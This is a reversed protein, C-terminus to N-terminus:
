VTLHYLYGDCTRGSGGTATITNSTAKLIYISDEVTNTGTIVTCGGFNATYGAGTHGYAIYYEGDTVSASATGGSQTTKLLIGTTDLQASDIGGVTPINKILAM